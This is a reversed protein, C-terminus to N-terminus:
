YFMNYSEDIIREMPEKEDEICEILKFQARCREINHKYHKIKYYTDGELYDTLFRLGMIFTMFRCSLVLNNREHVMLFHSAESLYGKTFAAFIDMNFGIKSIDPEDEGATNCASRIADGFDHLVTGPMVTDLDIVCLAEGETSFLLNNFKTDNHTIRIPLKGSRVDRTLIVLEPYRKYAFEIEKKVSVLRNVPDNEVAKQFNEWRWELDHFKPITDVLLGAYLSSLQNQFKGILEGGKYALDHDTVVDYSITDSIYNCCRWYNGDDDMYFNKNDTCTYFKLVRKYADEVGAHEYNSAIHETVFRINSMLGEVNKFIHHNIRQIVYGSHSGDSTKLLYTDNIHGSGIRSVYSIERNKIFKSFIESLQNKM